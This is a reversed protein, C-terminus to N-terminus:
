KNIIKLNKLNRNPILFLKNLYNALNFDDSYHLNIILRNDQFNIKSKSKGKDDLWSIIKLLDNDTLKNQNKISVLLLGEPFKKLKDQAIAAKQNKSSLSLDFTLSLNTYSVLLGIIFVFSFIFINLNKKLAKYIKDM